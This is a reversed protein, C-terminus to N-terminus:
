ATKEPRDNSGGKLKRLQELKEQASEGTIEQGISDKHAIDIKTDEQVLDALSVHRMQPRNPDAEPVAKVVVDIMGESVAQKIVSVLEEPDPFATTPRKDELLQNLELALKLTELQVADAEHLRGEKVMRLLSQMDAKRVRQEQILQTQRVREAVGPM